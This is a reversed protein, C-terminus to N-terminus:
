RDILLHQALSTLLQIDVAMDYFLTRYRVDPENDSVGSLLSAVRIVRLASGGGAGLPSDLPRSVM